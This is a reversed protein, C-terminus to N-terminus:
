DPVFNFFILLYSLNAPLIPLLHLIRKFAAPIFGSIINLGVMLAAFYNEAIHRIGM